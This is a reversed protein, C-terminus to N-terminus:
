RGIYENITEMKVSFTPPHRYSFKSEISLVPKNLFRVRVVDFCCQNLFVFTFLLYIQTKSRRISM